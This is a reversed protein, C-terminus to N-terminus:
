KRSRKWAADAAMLGGQLAGFYGGRDLCHQVMYQGLKGSIGGICGNKM